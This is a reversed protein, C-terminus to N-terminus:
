RRYRTTGASDRTNSVLKAFCEDAVIGHDDCWGNAPAADPFTVGAVTVWWGRLDFTQWEDSWLLRVEPYRLRLRLHQNLIEVASWTVVRGDVDPAVLGIRKSSLQPVWRDALDQAIVARDADAQARLADLAASEADGATAAPTGASPASGAAADRYEGQAPGHSTGADACEVLVTRGGGIAQASSGSRGDLSTPLRWFAGLPFRFEHEVSVAPDPLYLPTGSFDFVGSAVPHGGDTLSIRLADTSVIDGHPCRARLEMRVVLGSQETRYGVPTLVPPQGCRTVSRTGARPTEGETPYNWSSAASDSMPTTRHTVWWTADGSVVLVGVVVLVPFWVGGHRAPKTSNTERVPSTLGAPRAPLAADAGQGPQGSDAGQAPLASDPERAPLVADAEWASLAADPGGAPLASNAERAPVASGAEWAPLALNAGRTPLASNAERAPPSSDAERARLDLYMLTQAARFLPFAIATALLLYLPVFVVVTASPLTITVLGIPVFSVALVATMLIAWLIHLALIRGFCQRVLTASRQLSAVVGLGELTMVVPALGFLVGLAFVAIGVVPLVVLNGGAFLIVPLALWDPALILLYFVVMLRCLPLFRPRVRAIVAGLGVNEGRIAHEAAVVCVGNIAADAPIGVAFLAAVFVALTGLMAAVLGNLSSGAGSVAFGIVSTCVSWLAVLAVVIAGFTFGISVKWNLRTAGIAGGVLDGFSMPRSGFTNDRLGM